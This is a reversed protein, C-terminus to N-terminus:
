DRREPSPEQFEVLVELKEAFKKKNEPTLQRVLNMIQVDVNSLGDESIPDTKEIYKQVDLGMLWAPSVGLCIAMLQITMKSPTRQGSLYMTISSRACGLKAALDINSMGNMAEQLREPSFVKDAMM